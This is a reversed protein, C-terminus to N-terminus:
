GPCRRGQGPLRVHRGSPAARRVPALASSTRVVVAMESWPVGEVLHARRLTDAVHAAEVAPTDFVHVEATGAATHEGPQLRRHEWPGPLGEAVVRRRAEERDWGVQRLPYLYLHDQDEAKGRRRMDKPGADYGIAKIGRLNLTRNCFLGRPHRFPQLDASTAGHTGAGATAETM